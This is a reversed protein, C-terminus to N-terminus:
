NFHPKLFQSLMETQPSLLASTAGHEVVEGQHIFLFYDAFGQLFKIEHTVFIFEMGCEKLTAVAELVEYTLEPDLAATPEDMFILSPDTALARAISTRQAQGGSVQSPLKDKHQFLHLQTLLEAAKEQASNKDMKKIKELILTINRELTLHPFLNHQQFVMAIEQQFKKKELIPSTGNISITGREPAEIGSLLRLLTSKGCGSRGILGLSSIGDLDLSLGSFISSTGYSKDLNELTIKM